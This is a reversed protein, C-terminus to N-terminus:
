SDPSSYDLYRGLTSTVAEEDEIDARDFEQRGLYWESRHLVLAEDTLEAGDFSEWDLKRGQLVVGEDGFEVDREGSLAPLIASLSGSLTVFVTTSDPSSDTWLHVAVFVLMTVSLPVLSVGVLLRRRRPSPRASFEVLTTVAERERRRLCEHAVLSTLFGPLVAAVGAAAPHLVFAVPDLGSPRTVLPWVYAVPVVVLVAGARLRGLSAALDSAADAVVYGVAAGVLCGTAFLPWRPGEVALPVLPGVLLATYGVVLADLHRESSM